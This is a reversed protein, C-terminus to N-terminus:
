EGLTLQGTATVRHQILGTLNDQVTFSLVGNDSSDLRLVVGYTEKLNFSFDQSYEGSPAKDNYVATGGFQVFDANTKYIGLNQNIGNTFRVFSGNTLASLGGYTSQDGDSADRMFVHLYQIDIPRANIGPRCYFVVPTVEGNINMEISGRIIQTGTIPLDCCVPSAITIANTAVSVVKSQQFIDGYNILMYEGGATYGHGASVNIVTDDKTIGSTLTIDTKDETMFYRHFPPTTQDQIFVDIEKQSSTKNSM